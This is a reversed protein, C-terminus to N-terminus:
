SVSIMLDRITKNFRIREFMNIGIMKNAVCYKFMSIATGELLGYHSDFSDFNEQASIDLNQGLVNVLKKSLNIFYEKEFQPLPKKRNHIDNMNASFVKDIDKETVIGWEINRETWYSKELELKEIIRREDLKSAPKVSIAVEKAGEATKVTLLLDTTMVISVKEGNKTSNTNYKPHAIGLKEAIRETDVRSLPYQERIDIVNDAWEFILFTDYELESLLHHQRNSKWGKPRERFSGTPGNVVNIWPKYDVGTGQGYGQNIREIIKQDSWIIKSM